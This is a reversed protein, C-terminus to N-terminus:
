TKPQWSAVVNRPIASLVQQVQRAIEGPTLKTFEEPTLKHTRTGCAAFKRSQHLFWGPVLGKAGTYALNEGAVNIGRRKAEELRISAVTEDLYLQPYLRSAPIGAYFNKGRPQTWVVVAAGADFAADRYEPHGFLMAVKLGNGLTAWKVVRGLGERSRIRQLEQGYIIDFDEFVREQVRGWDITGNLNQYNPNRPYGEILFHLSTPEVPEVNDVMTVMEVLPNLSALADYSLELGLEELKDRLIAASCTREFEKEVHQDYEGGGTDFHLVSPDGESGPLREGANVFVIQAEAAKPIFKKAMWLCLWVDDDPFRHGVLTKVLTLQDVALGLLGEVLQELSPM